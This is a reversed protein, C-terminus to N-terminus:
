GMGFLSKIDLEQTAFEGLDVITLLSEFEVITYGDKIAGKTSSSQCFNPGYREKVIRPKYCIEGIEDYGYEYWNTVGRKWAPELLSPYQEWMAEIFMKAQEASICRVAAKGMAELRSLDVKM